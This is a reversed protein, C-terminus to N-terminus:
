PQVKRYVWSPKRGHASHVMSKERQKRNTLYSHIFLLASRSLGYANLNAILLEHNLCDFAKLLDTLVAGAVGGGDISKKCTELFHLLAHQTDYGERFGCLLPSLFSQVSPLMDQM